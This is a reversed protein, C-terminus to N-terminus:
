KPKHHGWCGPQFGFIDDMIEDSEDTLPVEIYTLTPYNQVFQRVRVTHNHYFEAWVAHSSQPPPFQLGGSPQPCDPHTAWKERTGHFHEASLAWATANRVALFITARPYAKAFADAVGGHFMQPYYCVGHNNNNPDSHLLGIDAYVQVSHGCQELPKRGNEINDRLCLAIANQQHPPALPTEYMYHASKGLGLNCTFYANTNTTGSKSLSMALIPYTIDNPRPLSGTVVPPIDYKHVDNDSSISHDDKGDKRIPINKYTTPSEQVHITSETAETWCKPPAINWQDQLQQTITQAPLTLDIEILSWSPHHTVFDRIRQHYAKYFHAYQEETNQSPFIHRPMNICGKWRQHLGYSLTSYWEQPDRIMNLITANPHAQYLAQLAGPTLVPDFCRGEQLAFAKPTLQNGRPVHLYQLDHWIDHQKKSNTEDDGGCLYTINRIYNSTTAKTNTNSSPSPMSLYAQQQQQQQVDMNHLMCSGMAMRLPTKLHGPRTWYRGLTIPQRETQGRNACAIYRPLIAMGSNILTLSFMPYHLPRQSPSLSAPLPSWVGGNENDNPDDQANDRTTTQPTSVLTHDRARVVQTPRGQGQAMELEAKAQKMSLQVNRRGIEVGILGSLLCVVCMMVFRRCGKTSVALIRSSGSGNGVSITCCSSATESSEEHTGDSSEALEEQPNANRTATTARQRKLRPNVM